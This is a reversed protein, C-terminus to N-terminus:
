KKNAEQEIRAAESKVITTLDVVMEAIMDLQMEAVSLEYELQDDLDEGEFQEFEKGDNFTIATMKYDHSLDFAMGRSTLRVKMVKFGEALLERVHDHYYDETYKAERKSEADSSKLHLKSGYGFRGLALDAGDKLAKLLNQALTNKVEHVHITESELTGILKMLMTFAAGALKPHDCILLQSQGHYYLKVPVEIVPAVPLMESIISEKTEQIEYKTMARFQTALFQTKAKEVSQSVATANVKREAYKFNLMWSGDTGLAYIQLPCAFGFTYNQYPTPTTFYLGKAEYVLGDEDALHDEADRAERQLTFAHEIAAMTVPVVLRKVNVARFFSLKSM